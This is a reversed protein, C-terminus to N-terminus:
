KAAASKLSKKLEWEQAVLKARQQGLTEIKRKLEDHRLNNAYDVPSWPKLKYPTSNMEVRARDMQAMLQADEKQLALLKTITAKSAELSAEPNGEPNAAPIGPRKKDAAMKTLLAQAVSSDRTIQAANVDFERGVIRVTLKNDAKEGVIMVRTAPPFSLARGEVPVTVKELLYGYQIPIAEQAVASDAASHLWGLIALLLPLGKM